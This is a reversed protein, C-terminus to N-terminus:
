CCDAHHQRFHRTIMNRRSAQFGCVSCEKNLAALLESDLLLLTCDQQATATQLPLRMRADFVSTHTPAHYRDCHQQRGHSTVFVKPCHPCKLLTHEYETVEIENVPLDLDASLLALQRLALCNHRLARASGCQTCPDQVTSFHILALMYKGHQAYPDHHDQSWHRLLAPSTRASVTACHM